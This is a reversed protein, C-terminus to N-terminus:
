EQYKPLNIRVLTPGNVANKLIHIEYIVSVQMKAVQIDPGWALITSDDVRTGFESLCSCSNANRNLHRVNM